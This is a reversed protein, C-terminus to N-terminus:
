EAAAIPDGFANCLTGAANACRQFTGLDLTPRGYKRGFWAVGEQVLEAQVQLGLAAEASVNVTVQETQGPHILPLKARVFGRTGPAKDVGEPGALSIGLQIPKLGASVLSSQGTNDILVDFVLVDDEARYRPEGVLSLSAGVIERPLPENIEGSAAPDAPEPAIEVPATTAQEPTATDPKCGSLLILGIAIALKIKM